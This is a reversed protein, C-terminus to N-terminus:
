CVFPVWDKAVFIGHVGLSRFKIEYRKKREKNFTVKIGIKRNIIEKVFVDRMGIMMKRKILANTNNKIRIHM